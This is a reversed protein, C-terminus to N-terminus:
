RDSKLDAYIHVPRKHVVSDLDLLEDCHETDTRLVPM